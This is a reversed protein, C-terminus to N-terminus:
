LNDYVQSRHRIRVVNVVGGQALFVMRWDGVRAKRLDGHGVLRGSQTSDVPNNALVELKKDIRIRVQRDLNQFDRRAASSFVIKWIV